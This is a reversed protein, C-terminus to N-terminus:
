KRERRLKGDIKESAWTLMRSFADNNSNLVEHSRDKTIENNIIMDHFKSKGIRRRQSRVRWFVSKGERLLVSCELAYYPQSCPLIKFQFTHAGPVLEYNSNGYKDTIGFLVKEIADNYIHEFSDCTYVEGVKLPSLKIKWSKLLRTIM